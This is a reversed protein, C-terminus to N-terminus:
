VLKKVMEWLERKTYKKRCLRRQWGFIYIYIKLFFIFLNHLLVQALVMTPMCFKQMPSFCKWTPRQAPEDVAANKFTDKNDEVASGHPNPIEGEFSRRRLSFPRKLSNTRIYKMTSVFNKLQLSKKM